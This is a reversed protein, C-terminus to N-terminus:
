KSAVLIAAPKSTKNGACLSASELLSLDTVEISRWNTQVFCCAVSALNKGKVMGSRHVTIHIANLSTRITKQYILYTPGWIM